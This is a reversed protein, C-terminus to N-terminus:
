KQTVEQGDAFGPMRDHLRKEIVVYKKVVLIEVTKLCSKGIGVGRM